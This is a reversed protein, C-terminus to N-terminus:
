DTVIIQLINSFDKLFFWRDGPRIRHESTMRTLSGHHFFELLYSNLSQDLDVPTYPIASGDLFASTRLSTALDPISAFQDTHGSLAFFQSRAKPAPTSTLSATESSGGCSVHSFPLSNDVEDKLFRDSFTEVYTSYLDLTTKNQEELIKKAKEPLAPLPKIGSRKSCPMRGFIHSFVLMLNEIVQAPAKNIDACIEGLYGSALLTHFSFAASEIYYLHSVFTAFNMPAGSSSILKQRRLFEISFRLHHLVQESVFEEGIVLQKQSLLGSIANKAFEAQESNNLLTCLRLVLGTNIPYHGMLSPLRSSILRHVKENTVGHFIVNGLLDFGRRGARGAAQRYNLATLRVNDGAFVVTKCPMNIGLALTETSIVVRLYGKRFLMEVSTIILVLM